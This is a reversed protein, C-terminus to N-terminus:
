HRSRPPEMGIRESMLPAQRQDPGVAAEEPARAGTGAAGVSYCIGCSLLAGTGAGTGSPVAQENTGAGRVAASVAGPLPPAGGTVPLYIMFSASRTHTIVPPARPMPSAIAARNMASPAVTAM